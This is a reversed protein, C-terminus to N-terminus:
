LGDWCLLWLLLFVLSSTVNCGLWSFFATLVDISASLKSEGNWVTWSGLILRGVDIYYDLCDRVSMRLSSGCDLYTNVISVMVSFIMSIIDLTLPNSNFYLSQSLLYFNLWMDNIVSRKFGYLDSTKQIPFFYGLITNVFLFSYFCWRYWVFYFDFCFGNGPIFFLLSHYFAFGNHCPICRCKLKLMCLTYMYVCLFLM